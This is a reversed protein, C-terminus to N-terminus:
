SKREAKKNAKEKRRRDGALKLAERNTDDVRGYVSQWNKTHWEYPTTETTPKTATELLTVGRSVIDLQMKEDFPAGCPNGLPFNTFLFRPVGCHEVIDLASGVIVSNIGAEELTRATLSM